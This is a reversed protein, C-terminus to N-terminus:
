PETFLSNLALSTKSSQTQGPAPANNPLQHHDEDTTALDADSASPSDPTAEQRGSKALPTLLLSLLRGSEALKDAADNGKIKTHSPVFLTRLNSGLTSGSIETPFYARRTKGM